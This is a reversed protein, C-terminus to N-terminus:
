FWNLGCVLVLCNNCCSFVHMLEALCEAYARGGGGPMEVTRNKMVKWPRRGQFLSVAGVSSFRETVGAQRHEGELRWGRQPGKRGARAQTGCGGENVKQGVIGLDGTCCAAVERGGRQESVAMKVSYTPSLCGWWSLEGGTSVPSMRGLGLPPESPLWRRQWVSSGAEWWLGCLVELQSLTVWSYNNNNCPLGLSVSLQARGLVAPRNEGESVQRVPSRVLVVSGTRSPLAAKGEM